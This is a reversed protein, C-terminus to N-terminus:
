ATSFWCYNVSTATQDDSNKKVVMIVM